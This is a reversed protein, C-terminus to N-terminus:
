VDALADQQHLELDVIAEFVFYSEATRCTEELPTVGPDSRECGHHHPGVYTKLTVM